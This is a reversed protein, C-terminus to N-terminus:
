ATPASDAEDPRPGLPARRRWDREGPDHQGYSKLVSHLEAVEELGRLVDAVPVDAFDDGSLALRVVPSSKM